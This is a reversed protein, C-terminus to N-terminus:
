LLGTGTFARGSRMALTSAATRLSEPSGALWGVNGTGATMGLTAIHRKLSKFPKGDDLCIIHDPFVSRKPNVAPVPLTPQSAPEGSLKRVAADVSAILDPLANVPVPNNSVYAQVITATLELLKSEM